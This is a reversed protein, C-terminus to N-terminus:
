NLFFPVNHFRMLYRALSITRIISANRGNGLQCGQRELQGYFMTSLAANDDGSVSQLQQLAVRSLRSSEKFYITFKRVIERTYFRAHFHVTTYTTKKERWNCRKIAIFIWRSTRTAPSHIYAKILNVSIKPAKRVGWTSTCCFAFFFVPPMFYFTANITYKLNIQPNHYSLKPLM